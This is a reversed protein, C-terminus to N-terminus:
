CCRVRHAVFWLGGLLTASLALSISVDADNTAGKQVNSAGQKNPDLRVGTLLGSKMLQDVSLTRKGFSEVKKEFEKAILKEFAEVAQEGEAEAQHFKEAWNGDKMEEAILDAYPTRITRDDGDPHCTKCAFSRLGYHEKLVEQFIEHGLALNCSFCFVLVVVCPGFRRM